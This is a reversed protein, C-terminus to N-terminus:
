MASLEHKILSISDIKSIKESVTFLVHWFAANYHQLRALSRLFYELAKGNNGEQKYCWGILNLATDIHRLNRDTYLILEMRVIAESTTQTGKAKSLLYVLFRQLIKSDVKACDPGIFIDYEDKKDQDSSSAPPMHVSKLMEYALATPILKKEFCTFTICPVFYNTRFEDFSIVKIDETLSRDNWCTGESGCCCYSIQRPSLKNVLSTVLEQCAEYQGVMYLFTAQKLKASFIDSRNSLEQWKSSLLLDVVTEAKGLEVKNAIIISILSLELYPLAICAAAKIQDSTHESIPIVHSFDYICRFIERIAETTTSNKLPVSITSRPGVVSLGICHDIKLKALIGSDLTFTMPFFSNIIRKAVDDCQISWLFSCDVTLFVSCIKELEKKLEDNLRGAFMNEKPIFYNPCIGSKVWIYLRKLCGKLCALLNKPQWLDGPTNEIMYFLCTKCHYSSVAEVGLKKNIYDKKVMKLLIYCKFQTHNLSFMLLREQLSLSIRWELDRESGHPHGIRVVFFGLKKMNEILDQPPWDYKRERDLWELAANPWSRCRYARVIDHQPIKSTAQAAMAPGHAKYLAAPFIYGFRLVKTSVVRGNCDFQYGEPLQDPVLSRTFPIRSQVVQLKCYGPKTHGDRVILLCQRDYQLPTDFISQLVEPIDDCYLFDNDSKLGYTTTGEAASGFVHLMCGKRIFTYVIETAIAVEMYWKRTDKSAGIIDLIECLRLSLPKYFVPVSPIEM